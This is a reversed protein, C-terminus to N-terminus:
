YDIGIRGPMGAPASNAEPRKPIMSETTIFLSAVTM